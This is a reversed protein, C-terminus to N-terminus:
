YLLRPSALVKYSVACRCHMVELNVVFVKWENSADNREATANGSM